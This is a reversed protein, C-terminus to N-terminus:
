IQGAPANRGTLRRGDLMEMLFAGRIFSSTSRATSTFLQTLDLDHQLSTCSVLQDTKQMRRPRPPGPERQQASCSQMMSRGWWLGEVVMKTEGVSVGGSWRAKEWGAQGDFDARLDFLRRIAEDAASEPMGYGANSGWEYGQWRLGSQGAASSLRAPKDNQKKRHSCCRVRHKVDSLRM